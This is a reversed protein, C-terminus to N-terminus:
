DIDASKVGVSGDPGLAILVNTPGSFGVFRDSAPSTRLIQGLTEEEASLVALGGDATADGYRNAEPFFRQTRELPVSQLSQSRTRALFKRHQGHILVIVLVFLGVRLLHIPPFRRLPGLLSGIM